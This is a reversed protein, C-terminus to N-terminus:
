LLSKLSNSHRTPKTNMATPISIIRKNQTTQDDIQRASFISYSILSLSPSLYINNTGVRELRKNKRNGSSKTGANKVIVNTLM